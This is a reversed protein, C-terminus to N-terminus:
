KHLQIIDSISQLHKSYSFTSNAYKFASKSIRLYLEKNNKILLIKEGLEKCNKHEYFFGNVNEKVIDLSGGAKTAIVPIGLKMAEVTVRGFAEKRSCMLLLNSQLIYEYPDTAFKKLEIFNHLNKENIIDHIQDLYNSRGEVGLLTLGIDKVGKQNVIYDLAKVADLQGKTQTVRGLIIVKFKEKYSEDIKVLEIYKDPIRVEYYILKLKKREIYQCYKNYVDTSNVMVKKSLSTILRCSIRKGFIFNFGHDEEGFEHIYWFHAKNLFLSAISGCPSAITNTVVFDPNIKKLTLTMRISSIIISRLLRIKDLFKLRVGRDIWWPNSQIIINEIGNCMLEDYLPGNNPLLVHVEYGSKHLATVSEFLCREGGNLSSGHSIWVIKSKSM